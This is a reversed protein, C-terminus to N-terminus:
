SIENLMWLMQKWLEVYRLDYDCHRLRFINGEGDMEYDRNIFRNIVDEVYYEDYRSDNMNGLGLNVIMRWFWQATRNGYAPDDMIEECRFSLAIMMELVSCPGDLYYVDSYPRETDYAFRDRLSIGDEVRDIDGSMVNVFEVSHLYKLLKRYSIADDYRNECVLDFMWEFYNREINSRSHVM